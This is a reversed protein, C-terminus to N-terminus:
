SAGVKLGIYCFERLVARIFAYQDVFGAVAAFRKVDTAVPYGLRDFYWELLSEATLELAELSPNQMGAAELTRQKDLAGARLCAYEGTTRLHNPLHRVVEGKMLADVWGLLAEQRILEGFGEDSLDNEELWRNVDDDTLLRHAQCFKGTIEQATANSAVLARSQAWQLAFCRLMAGEYARAYAARRLRLEDLLLTTTTTEVDSDRDLRATGAQHVLEDWYITHELVFSPRKPEPKSLRNQMARLMALADERKQDIRGHPWWESFADLEAQALGWETALQLLRPYVREPYFLNKAIRELATRTLSSIVGAAEAGALTRRINVMAESSPRYGVDEDGHVVAVEDDDELVGDRFSEFIQGVGVMGFPALEVARLAGMSASGYVHIGQTMAWLIEKHWVAPLREFYGDIIGIALPRRLGIRYVDGQSVPPLYVAELETRADVPSLTPGTFVYITM